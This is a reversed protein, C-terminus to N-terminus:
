GSLVGEVFIDVQLLSFVQVRVVGVDLPVRLELCWCLPMCSFVVDATMLVANDAIISVNLVKNIQCIITYTPV